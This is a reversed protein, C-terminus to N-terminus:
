KGNALNSNINVREKHNELYSRTLHLFIMLFTYAKLKAVLLKRNISEFAKSHNIFIVGIFKWKSNKNM